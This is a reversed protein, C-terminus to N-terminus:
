VVAGYTLWKEKPSKFFSIEDLENEFGKEDIKNPNSLRQIFDNLDEFAGKESLWPDILLSIKYEEIAEQIWEIERRNEKDFIVNSTNGSLIKYGEIEDRVAFIIEFDKKLINNLDLMRNIHGLGKRPGGDVRIMIKKVIKNKM